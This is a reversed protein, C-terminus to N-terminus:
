QSSKPTTTAAATKEKSGNTMLYAISSLCRQCMFLTIDRTVPDKKKAEETFLIVNAMEDRINVLEFPTNWDIYCVLGCLTKTSSGKSRLISLKYSLHYRGLQQKKENYVNSKKARFVVLSNATAASSPTKPKNTTGDSLPIAVLPFFTCTCKKAVYKM